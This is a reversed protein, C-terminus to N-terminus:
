NNEKTKYIIVLIIGALFILISIVIAIIYIKKLDM